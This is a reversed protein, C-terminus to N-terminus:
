DRLPVRWLYLEKLLGAVLVLMHGSVWIQDAWKGSLAGESVVSVLNLSRFRLMLVKM